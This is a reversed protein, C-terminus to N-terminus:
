YQSIRHLEDLEEWYNLGKGDERAVATHPTLWAVTDENELLAHLDAYTFARRASILDETSVDLNLEQLWERHGERGRSELLDSLRTCPSFLHEM